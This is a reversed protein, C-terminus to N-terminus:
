QKPVVIRQTMQFHKQQWTVYVRVDWQGESAIVQNAYHGNGIALLPASFDLGDQTPRFFFAEVAAGEIALGADDNLNLSLTGNAYAVAASWGLSEQARAAEITDNYNLGKQYANETVVGTHTSTAVFVFIGDLIALVVFFAVFYWPIWKDFRGVTGKGAKENQPIDLEVSNM